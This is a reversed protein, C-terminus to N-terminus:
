NAWEMSSNRKTYEHISKENWKTTCKAYNGQLSQEHESKGRMWKELLSTLLHQKTKIKRTGQLKSPWTSTHHLKQCSISLRTEARSTADENDM